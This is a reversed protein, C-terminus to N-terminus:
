CAMKQRKSSHDYEENISQESPVAFSLIVQQISEINFNSESPKMLEVLRRIFSTVNKNASIHTILETNEPKIELALMSKLYTQFELGMSKFPRSKLLEKMFFQILQECIRQPDSHQIYYQQTLHKAIDIKKDSHKNFIELIRQETEMCFDKSKYLDASLQALDVILGQRQPTQFAHASQTLEYATKLVSQLVELWNSVNSRQQKAMFFELQEVTIKKPLEKFRFRAIVLLSINKIRNINNEQQCAISHIVANISHKGTKGDLSYYIEKQKIGIGKACHQILLGIIEMPIFIGLTFSINVLSNLLSSLTKKYLLTQKLMLEKQSIAPVKLVNIGGLLLYDICKILNRQEEKHAALELTKGQYTTQAIMNQCISLLASAHQLLPLGSDLYSSNEKQESVAVKIVDHHNKDMALHLFGHDTELPSVGKKIFINPNAGAKLLLSVIETYGLNAAMMLSSYGKFQPNECRFDLLSFRPFMMAIELLVRTCSLSRQFVSMHLASMGQCETGQVLPHLNFSAGSAILQKIVLPDNNKVALHLPTYGTNQTFSKTLQNLEGKELIHCLLPIIKDRYCSAFTTLHCINMGEYNIKDSVNDPHTTKCLLSSNAKFLVLQEIAALHGRLVALHLLTLGPKMTSYNDIWSACEEHSPKLHKLLASVAAYAGNYVGWQWIDMNHSASEPNNVRCTPDAGAQLLSRVLWDDNGQIALMLPSLSKYKGQTCVANISPFQDNKYKYLVAIGKRFYERRSAIFQWINMGHFKDEPDNITSNFSTGYKLFAEVMDESEQQIAVLLLPYGKFAGNLCPQDLTRFADPYHEGLAKIIEPKFRITMFQLINIGDPYREDKRIATLDAGAKILALFTTPEDNEKTCFLSSFNKGGEKVNENISPLKAKFNSLEGIAAVAEHIAAFQWINLGKSTFFADAGLTLLKRVLPANNAHIADFLPTYSNNTCPKELWNRCQLPSPNFKEILFELIETRSFHVALEWIDMGRTEENEPVLQSVRCNPDAGAQLLQEVLIPKNHRCIALQLPNLGAYFGKQCITGISPMDQYSHLLSLITEDGSLVALHWINLISDSIKVTKNKNAGLDFLRKVVDVEGMLTAYYLIPTNTPLEIWTLDVPTGLKNLLVGIVKVAGLEAAVHWINKGHLRSNSDNILEHPNAKADLLAAVVSANDEKIALHLATFGKHTGRAIRANIKPANPIARLIDIVSSHKSFAARHWVNDGDDSTYFPCAGKNLLMKVSDILGLGIAMLLPTLGDEGREDIYEPADNLAKELTFIDHILHHIKM